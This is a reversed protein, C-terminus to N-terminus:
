THFGARVLIDAWGPFRGLFREGGRVSYGAGSPGALGGSRVVVLLDRRARWRTDKYTSGM